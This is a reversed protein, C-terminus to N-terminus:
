IFIYYTKLIIGQYKPDPQCIGLIAPLFETEQEKETGNIFNDWIEKIKM